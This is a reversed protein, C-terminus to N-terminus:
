PRAGHRRRHCSADGCPAVARLRPAPPAAVIVEEQKPATRTSTTTKKSSSSKRSFVRMLGRRPKSLQDIASPTSKSAGGRVSSKRLLKNVAATNNNPEVVAKATM